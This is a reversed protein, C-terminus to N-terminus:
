PPLKEDGRDFLEVTTKLAIVVAKIMTELSMSPPTGAWDGKKVAAQEPLLPIHMYGVRRPYGYRASHHLGLYTVFNCLFTGATNSVNAPIGSERLRRVIAKKPLTTFYAAPGEPDIPEDVPQEGDNDPIRADKVNVAVREVTVYSIGSWLGLGLYINPRNSDFLGKLAPGARKFSVPLVATVVKLEPVEGALVDPLKGVLVESPNVKDGGFPEFGTILAKM